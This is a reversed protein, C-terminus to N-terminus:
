AQSVEINKKMEKNKTAREINEIEKYGIREAMKMEKGKWLGKNRYFEKREWKWKKIEQERQM